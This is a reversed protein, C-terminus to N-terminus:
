YCFMYVELLCLFFREVLRTEFAAWPEFADQSLFELYQVPIITCNNVLVYPLKNNLRLCFYVHSHNGPAVPKMVPKM